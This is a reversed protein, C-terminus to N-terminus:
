LIEYMKGPLSRIKGLIELETLETMLEQVDIELQQSLLDAHVAGGSLSQCIRKQTDNLEDDTDYPSSDHTDNKVEATNTIIEESATTENIEIIKKTTENNRKRKARSKSSSLFDGGTDASSRLSFQSIDSNGPNRIEMDIPSGILFEDIVERINLLMRAGESLLQANGSCANSFIDSPPLCFVERGQDAAFGATILSGSKLSAEFVITVYGLAALIRNRKPFNLSYPPTGPPYESVFVGGNEIIKDRYRFNEKPYDVDVGCGLVCITPRNAEVAAMHATIDTGVAFGSVIVISNKALERCVKYTVSISYDSAKRAGVATVTRSGELCSINGKYYLVAPPNYIHRLRQPYNKDSYGIVGIGKSRCYEIYKQAQIISNKSVASREEDTLIILPDENIIHDYAESASQFLCMLEWIRSNATGFVMTLWLWYLNEEM